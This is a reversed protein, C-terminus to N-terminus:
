TDKYTVALKQEPSLKDLFNLHGSSTDDEYNIEDKPTILNELNM